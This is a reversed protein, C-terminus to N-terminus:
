RFGDALSVGDLDQVATTVQVFHSTSAALSADPVVRIVRGGGVLSITGAVLPTGGTNEHLSVNTANM